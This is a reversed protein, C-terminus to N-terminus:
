VRMGYLAKALELTRDKVAPSLGRPFPLRSRNASDVILAGAAQVIGALASVSVNELNDHESHHQWRGGPFNPRHFWLTPVGYVSFCFHDSFPVAGTVPRVSLGAGALKRLAFAKLADTGTINLETHGLPSSCADFNVMLAVNALEERHAKVYAASGVSLQEEAGFSIFRLTRKRPLPALARALELLAVVGSANDDAGVNNAQSDHHAGIVILGAKADRGTLEGVVNSSDARVMELDAQVRVRNLGRLRWQWAEQFPVTVTPPFGWKKVWLPYTGDNKPWSFPLREDVHIVALPNARVLQRHEDPREPMPGFLVVVKGSLADRKLAGGQEPMELWVIEGEVSKGGPTSSSGTVVAAAVKRWKRGDRVEVKAAGRKRSNCAFTELHCTACGAAALASLVHEAARWESETGALREGIEDCLVKWDALMRDNSVHLNM